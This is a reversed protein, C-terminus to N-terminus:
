FFHDKVVKKMKESSFDVFPEYNEIKKMIDPFLVTDTVNEKWYNKSNSLKALIVLAELSIQHQMYLNIVHPYNGNKVIFNAQFNEDLSDLSDKVHETISEQIKKWESYTKEAEEDLLSGIWIKPNKVVNSLILETYHSKKSLRQFTFADKRSLFSDFSANVKGNYKHYDYSSTFHRKLALFELYVKFGSENLFDNQHSQRM